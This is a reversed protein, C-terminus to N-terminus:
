AGGVVQGNKVDKLLAFELELLRKSRDKLRKAPCGAFVGWPTLSEKVLSLAGVAAGEGITVQPLVVSGSGIIVHRELAVPGRTVGTYRVPVTPNTMYAGTYDDSRSYVRVGQSLNGFDGICIGDGASLYCNAGIHIFSGIRIWGTGAAAITCYGDIRVDDGIEINELGVITSNKAIRVNHGLAKFGANKLDSESYYGPDFPNELNM